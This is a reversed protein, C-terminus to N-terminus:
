NGTDIRFKKFLECLPRRFTEDILTKYQIAFNGDDYFHRPHNTQEAELPNVGFIYTKELTWIILVAAYRKLLFKRIKEIWNLRVDLM